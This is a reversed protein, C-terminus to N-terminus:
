WGGRCRGGRRVGGRLTRREGIVGRLRRLLAQRSDGGLAGPCLPLKARVPPLCQIACATVGDATRLHGCALLGGAPLRNGLPRPFFTMVEMRQRREELSTAIGRRGRLRRAEEIESLAPGNGTLIALCGARGRRDTPRHIAVFVGYILEALGLRFIHRRRYPM